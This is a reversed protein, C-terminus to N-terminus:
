VSNWERDSSPFTITIVASDILKSVTQADKDSIEKGLADESMEFISLYDVDHARGMILNAAYNLLDDHLM